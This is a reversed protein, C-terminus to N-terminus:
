VVDVGLSALETAYQRVLAANGGTYRYAIRLNRGQSWGLEALRKLLTENYSKAAPDDEKLYSFVAIYATRAQQQARAAFPWATAAGGLLKILERRRM